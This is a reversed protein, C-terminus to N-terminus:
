KNVQYDLETDTLAKVAQDAAVEAMKNRAEYTDNGIHPTLIVNDLKALEENIHPEEEHVDLAAAQIQKNKLADILASEDVVGGRATNIFYASEKMQEFEKKSFLHHSTENYNVQTIVYDAEKLAEELSVKTADLETDKEEHDVYLLKMNFAQAIKGIYQGIQGFGVIALTKDVVQNGGLYGMVQWGDFENKVAMEHGPLVRRSLALMLTVALEATSAVSEHVPTNTVAINHKNAEDIDINNFGSGVNAIVKLGTNAQIVEAPAQVNVGTILGDAGKVRDIIVETKPTTLEDHMDLEINQDKIIKVATEPLKVASYIKPM